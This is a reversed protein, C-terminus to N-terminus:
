RICGARVELRFWCGRWVESTVRRRALCRRRALAAVAFGRCGVGNGMARELWRWCQVNARSIAESAISGGLQLLWPGWGVHIVANITNPLIQHAIRIYCHHPELPHIITELRLWVKSALMLTHIPLSDFFPGGLPREVWIVLRIQAVWASCLITYTLCRHLSLVNYQSM